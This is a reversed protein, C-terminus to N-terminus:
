LTTLSGYGTMSNRKVRVPDRGINQQPGDQTNGNFLITAPYTTKRLGCWLVSRSNTISDKHSIM